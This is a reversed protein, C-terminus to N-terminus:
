RENACVDLEPRSPPRGEEPGIRPGKRGSLSTSLSSRHGSFASAAAAIFIAFAAETGADHVALGSTFRRQALSAGRLGISHKLM